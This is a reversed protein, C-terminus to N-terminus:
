LWYEWRDARLVYAALLGNAVAHALICDALSRTRRLWLNLLLGTILGVEWFPGHESAFLLATIWFASRSYDGLRLELFNSRSLWRLLFGRWFLEEIIPVVVATGILRFALFVLNTRLEGPLSSVVKGTLPNTFLWHQRYGPFLLDPGIWLAFILVGLGISELGRRPKWDIVGRSLALLTASVAIVCAPYAIGPGFPLLKRAALFAVFLLFPAVYPVAPHRLATGTKM